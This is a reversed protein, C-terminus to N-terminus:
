PADEPSNLQHQSTGMSCGCSLAAHCTGHQWPMKISLAKTTIYLHRETVRYVDFSMDAADANQQRLALLAHQVLDLCDSQLAMDSDATHSDICPLSWVRNAKVSPLMLNWM